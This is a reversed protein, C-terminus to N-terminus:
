KVEYIVKKKLGTYSYQVLKIGQKLKSSTYIVGAHKSGNILSLDIDKRENTKLFLLIQGLISLYNNFDLTNTDLSTLINLVIKVASLKAYIDKNFLNICENYVYDLDERTIVIDDGFKSKHLTLKDEEFCYKNNKNKVMDNYKDIHHIIKIAKYSFRRDKANKLLYTDNSKGTIMLESKGDAVITNIKVTPVLIELNNDKELVKVYELLKNNTGDTDLYIRPIAILETITKGKHEYKILSYKSFSSSNIAGYVSEDYLNGNPTASKVKVTGKGKPLITVKSFMENSIYTRTTELIDFRETINKRIIENDESGRWIIEDSNLKYRKYKVIKLYNSTDQYREDANRKFNTLYHRNKFYDNFMKGLVANLYADHAHHYNNATRSKVLDYERRYDSINEAKSYIINEEPVKKYLKLTTILAKNAQDTAVKQRAAFASLVNYDVEKESLRSYKTKSIFNNDILFKHFKHVDKSLVGAEPLFKDSKKNNLTKKVLVRNSLSDDKILAQPYIHDIDYSRNTGNIIDELDLDEGSYMCKGFQSFYLYIADSNKVGNIVREDDLKSLLAKTNISLSEDKFAESAKIINERLTTYRSNTKKKKDAKNTRTVEVCYYKIKTGLIDELEDIIRIAQIYPRIYIPSVHINEDIFEVLSDKSEDDMLKMNYEDITQKVNFMPSFIIEQLNLMHERMIGLIGNYSKLIEGTEPNVQYFIMDNLLNKCLTGTKKYNLSKIVKIQEDTLLYKNKLRDVLISKDEFITIDRIINDIIDYKNDFDDSFITKFKIVSNLTVNVEPVDNEGLTIAYHTYIYEKIKKSTVKPTKMFLENYLENRLDLSIRVGDIKLTNLYNLVNYESYLLSDKPLCYDEKGKLYTCKNLMRTIFDEASKNLDVVENFNWPLVRRDNNVTAWNFDSNNSGKLPGVYYPRKFNFIQEIKNINSINYEKDIENLFPYYQAQNNLIMRLESLHLQKPISANESGNTRLLFTKDELKQKIDDYLTLDKEDINNAISKLIKDVYKKFDEYSCHKFNYKKNNIKTMGVYSAYNPTKDDYVKFMENYEKHNNDYTRILYKLDKLDKAHENYRAVFAESLSKHKGLLENLKVYDTVNKLNPLLQIVRYLESYMGCADDIKTDIDDAYINVELEERSDDKYMKLKQLKVSYNVLLEIILESYITNKCNLLTILNNKKSKIGKNSYVKGGITVEAVNSLIITIEKVLDSNFEINPLYSNLYNCTENDEEALAINTEVIAESIDNFVLLLNTIDSQDYTDGEQLFNGRYKIIHHIALYILRIDAKETSECLYKRLHWITPYQKYYDKNSILGELVVKSFITSDVAKFFSEDLRTYFTSDIKDIEPKFIERLLNIREKRRRLRRRSCRFTRRASADSSEEFMRVGWLRQKGKRVLQRNEDVVAWGVSNTGIDLGLTYEKNLENM